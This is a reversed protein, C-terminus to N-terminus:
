DDDRRRLDSSERLRPPDLPELRVLTPRSKGVEVPLARSLRFGEMKAAAELQGTRHVILVVRGDASLVSRAGSLLKRFFGFFRIGRGLRVGHPPNALYLDVPGGLHEDALALADGLVVEARAELGAAVLNERAGVVARPAWDLGLLRTEPFRHAAELLLTGSGCFPDLVVRPAPTGALRAAAAALSPALGVRQTFPRPPRGQGAPGILRGLALKGDRLDARVVVDPDELRVPLGTRRHVVGGVAREVQVRVFNADCPRESSVRFSMGCLSPLWAAQAAARLAELGRLRDLPLVDFHEIVDVAIRLRRLREVDGAAAECLVRGPLRPGTSSLGLSELEEELLPEIGPLTTLAVQVAGEPNGSSGVRPRGPGLGRERGPSSPAKESRTLGM